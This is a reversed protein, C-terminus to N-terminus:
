KLIKIKMSLKEIPRDGRATEVAAIKDIVDLGETIQGFVTYGGDLHPTGGQTEYAAKQEATYHFEKYDVGEKVLKNWIEDGIANLGNIDRSRQLSDVKRYIDACEPRTIYESIYPGKAAQNIQNELSTLQAAPTKRGQVIYFQSGSSAKTPNVQDGQRAAALAGKIHVYKQPMFEAPVTYGPDQRGDKNSGGQIMFQNIVRHFPSDEYWGDNVLKIFNDRHQPTENYLEGKMNGYPTEIVFQVRKEQACSTFFLFSFFLGFLLEKMM